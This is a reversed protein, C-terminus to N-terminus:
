GMRGFQLLKDGGVARLDFAMPVVLSVASPLM